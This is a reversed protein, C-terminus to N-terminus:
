KPIYGRDVALTLDHADPQRGKTSANRDMWAVESEMRKLRIQKITADRDLGDRERRAAALDKTSKELERALDRSATNSM